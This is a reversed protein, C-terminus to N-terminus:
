VPGRTPDICHAATIVYLSSIVSGSCIGLSDRLNRYELSAIWSYEEPPIRKGGVINDFPYAPTEGCDLIMSRMNPLQIDITPPNETRPKNDTTICNDISQRYDIPPCCHFGNGKPCEYITETWCDERKVCKGLVQPFRKVFCKSGFASLVQLLLLVLIVLRCM